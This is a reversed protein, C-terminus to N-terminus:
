SNAGATTEEGKAPIFIKFFDVIRNFLRVFDFDNFSQAIFDILKKITEM